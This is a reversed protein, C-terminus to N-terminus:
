HTSARPRWRKATRCLIIRVLVARVALGEVTGTSGVIELRGTLELTTLPLEEMVIKDIKEVIPECIRRHGCVIRRTKREWGEADLGAYEPGPPPLGGERRLGSNSVSVGRNSM